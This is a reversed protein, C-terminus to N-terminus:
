PALLLGVYRIQSYEEELITSVTIRLKMWVVPDFTEYRKSRTSSTRVRASQLLETKGIRENNWRM